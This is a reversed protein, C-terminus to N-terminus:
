TMLRGIRIDTIEKAKLERKIWAAAATTRRSTESAAAAEGKAIKSKAAQGESSGSSCPATTASRTCQRSAASATAGTRAAISM